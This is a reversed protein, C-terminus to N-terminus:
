KDIDKLFLLISVHFELDQNRVTLSGHYKEAIRQINRLGFGHGKSIKAMQSEKSYNNQTSM